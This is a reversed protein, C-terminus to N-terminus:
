VLKIFQKMQKFRKEGNHKPSSFTEHDSVM